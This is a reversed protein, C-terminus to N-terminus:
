LEAWRTGNPDIDDYILLDIDLQGRLYHRFLRAFKFYIVLCGLAFMGSLGTIGVIVKLDDILDHHRFFLVCYGIFLVGGGAMLLLTMLGKLLGNRLRVETFMRFLYVFIIWAIVNFFLAYYFLVHRLLDEYYVHGEDIVIVHTELGYLALSFITILLYQRIIVRIPAIFGNYYDRNTLPTSLLQSLWHGELVLQMLEVGSIRTLSWIFFLPYVLTSLRVVTGVLYIEELPPLVLAFLLLINLRAHRVLFREIIFFSEFSGYKYRSFKVILRYFPNIELYQPLTTLQGLSVM